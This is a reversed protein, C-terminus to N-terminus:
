DAHSANQDATAKHSTNTKHTANVHVIAHSGQSSKAKITKTDRGKAGGFISAMKKGASALAAKSAQVARGFLGPTPKPKKASSSQKNEQSVNHATVNAQMQRGFLLEARKASMAKSQQVANGLPAVNRQFMNRKPTMKDLLFKLRKIESHLVSGQRREFNLSTNLKSQDRLLTREHALLKSYTVNFKERMEHEIESHINELTFKLYNMQDNPHADDEVQLASLEHPPTLEVNEHVIADVDIGLDTLNAAIARLDGVVNLVQQRTANLTERFGNNKAHQTVIHERLESNTKEISAIKAEEAHLTANYMAVTSALYDSQERAKRQLQRDLVNMEQLADFMEDHADTDNEVDLSAAVAEVQRQLLVIGDTRVEAQVSATWVAAVGASLIRAASMM